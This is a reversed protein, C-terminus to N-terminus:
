IEVDRAICPQLFPREVSSGRRNGTSHLRLVIVYATLANAVVDIGDVSRSIVITRVADIQFHCRIRAAIAIQTPGAASLPEAIGDVHGRCTHIRDGKTYGSNTGARYGIGEM